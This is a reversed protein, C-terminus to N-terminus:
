QPMSLLTSHSLWWLQLDHFLYKKGRCSNIRIQLSWEPWSARILSALSNMLTSQLAPLPIHKHVLPLSAEKTNNLNLFIVQLFCMYNIHFIVMFAIALSTFSNVSSHPKRIKKKKKKASSPNEKRFVYADLHFFISKSYAWHQGLSQNVFCFLPKGM